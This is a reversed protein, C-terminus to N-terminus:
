IKALYKTKVHGHKGTSTVVENTYKGERKIKKNDVITVKGIFIGNDENTVLVKEGISYKSFKDKKM